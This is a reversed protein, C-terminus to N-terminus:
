RRREGVGGVGRQMEVPQVIADRKPRRWREADGRKRELCPEAAVARAGGGRSAAAADNGHREHRFPHRLSLAVVPIRIIEEADIALPANQGSVEFVVRRTGIMGGEADGGNAVADPVVGGGGVIARRPPQVQVAVEFRLHDDAGERRAGVADLVGSQSAGQIRAAVGAAREQPREIFHPDPIDSPVCGVDLRRHRRRQRDGSSQDAAPTQIFSASGRDDVAGAVPVGARQQVAHAPRRSRREDGSRRWRSSVGQM